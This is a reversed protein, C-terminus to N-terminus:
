LHADDHLNYGWLVDLLPDERRVVNGVSCKGQADRAAADESFVSLPLYLCADDSSFCWGGLGIGKEFSLGVKHYM